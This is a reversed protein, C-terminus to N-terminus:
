MGGTMMLRNMSKSLDTAAQQKKLKQSLLMLNEETIPINQRELMLKNAAIIREDNATKLNDREINISDKIESIDKSLQQLEAEDIAFGQDKHSQM